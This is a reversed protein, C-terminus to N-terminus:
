IPSNEGFRSRVVADKNEESWGDYYSTLRSLAVTAQNVKSLRQVLFLVYKGNSPHFGDFELPSDPHDTLVVLDAREFKRNLAAAIRLSKRYTPRM